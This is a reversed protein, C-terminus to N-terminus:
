FNPLLKVEVTRLASDVRGEGGRGWWKLVMGRNSPDGGGWKKIDEVGAGEWRVPLNTM